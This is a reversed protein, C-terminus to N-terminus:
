ATVRSEARAASSSRAPRSPDRDSGFRACDGGQHQRQALVVPHWIVVIEMLHTAGCSVIFIAFCVVMWNFPVDRRKRVFYLLTFPITFYSVAILLDSAVHLGLIDPRWLYCMGHPMFGDSAFLSDPGIM